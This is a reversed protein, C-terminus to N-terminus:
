MFTMPRTRQTTYRHKLGGTNFQCDIQHNGLDMRYYYAGQFCCFLETELEHVGYDISISTNSVVFIYVQSCLTLYHHKSRPFFIHLQDEELHNLVISHTSTNMGKRMPKVTYFGLLGQGCTPCRSPVHSYYYTYYNLHLM